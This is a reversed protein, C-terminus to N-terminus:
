LVQDLGNFRGLLHGRVHDVDALQKGRPLLAEHVNDHAALTRCPLGRRAGFGRSFLLFNEGAKLLLM